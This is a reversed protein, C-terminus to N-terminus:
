NANSDRSISISIRASASRRRGRPDVSQEAQAIATRPLACRATQLEDNPALLCLQDHVQVYRGQDVLKLAPQWRQLLHFCPEDGAPAFRRWRLDGAQRAIDPSQLM